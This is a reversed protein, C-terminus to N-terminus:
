KASRVGFYFGIVNGLAAIWGGIVVKTLDSGTDAALLGGGCGSRGRGATRGGHAALPHWRGGAAGRGRRAALPGAAAGAGLRRALPLARFGGNASGTRLRASPLGTSADHVARPHAAGDREAAPLGSRPDAAKARGEEAAPGAGDAFRRGIARAEDRRLRQAASGGPRSVHAAAPERVGRAVRRRRGAPPGAPVGASEGPDGLGRGAAGRHGAGGHRERSRRDPKGVARPDLFAAVDGP